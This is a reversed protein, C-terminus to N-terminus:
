KVRKWTENFIGNSDVQKYTDGEIEVTITGTKGILSKTREGAFDTTERLKNGELTYRGGHQFVIM